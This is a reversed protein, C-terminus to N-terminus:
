PTQLNSNDPDMRQRVKGKFNKDDSSFGLNVVADWICKRLNDKNDRDFKQGHSAHFEIDCGVLRYPAALAEGSQTKEVLKEALLESKDAGSPGSYNSANARIFSEPANPFLRRLQREPLKDNTPHKM